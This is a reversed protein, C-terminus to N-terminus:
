SRNALFPALAEDLKKVSEPSLDLSHEKGKYTFKTPKTRTDIEEGTLDDTVVLKNRLAM